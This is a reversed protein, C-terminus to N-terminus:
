LFILLLIAIQIQDIYHKVANIKVLSNVIHVNQIILISRFLTYFTQITSHLRFIKIVYSNHGLTLKCLRIYMYLMFNM